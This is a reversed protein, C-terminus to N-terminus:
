PVTEDKTEYEMYDVTSVFSINPVFHGDMVDLHLYSAGAALARKGEDALYAMDCDLVSPGVRAPM